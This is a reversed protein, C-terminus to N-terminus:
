FLKNISKNFLTPKACHPHKLKGKKIKNNEKTNQINKSKNKTQILANKM